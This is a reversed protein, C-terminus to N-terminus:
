LARGHIGTPPRLRALAIEEAEDDEADTAQRDLEVHLHAIREGCLDIRSRNVALARTAAALEDAKGRLTTDIAALEGEMQQVRVAVVDAYRMTANLEALRVASGGTMMQAIRAHFGRLQEREAETRALQADRQALAEAHAARAAILAAQLRRELRERRGITLQLAAVRRRTTEPSHTTSM